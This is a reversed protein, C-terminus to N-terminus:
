KKIFVFTGDYLGFVEDEFEQRLMFKDLDMNINQYDMENPFRVQLMKSKAM